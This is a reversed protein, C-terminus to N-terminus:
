QALKSLDFRDKYVGNDWQESAKYNNYVNENVKLLHPFVNQDDGGLSFTLFSMANLGKGALYNIVGLLETGKDGSWTYKSADSANYDVQHPSWSKRLNKRNPTADFDDYALANEPSDSGAKVFWPGNPNGRSKGVYKLYHQGVYKLMGKNPSRNDRGSKDSEKINISGTYGDMYGASSGGGNIAVDNGTKYSAKWTWTGLADPTFNVAWKDGSECGSDAANVCGAYYGPVEYSKGHNTFTVTLNYDSFPNKSAKESSDVGDFFLILKHWRQLNGSVEQANSFSYFFSFVFFLFYSSKM